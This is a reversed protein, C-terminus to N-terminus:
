GGRMAERQLDKMGASESGSTSKRPKRHPHEIQLPKGKPKGGLAQFVARFGADNVEAATALLEHDTTWQPREERWVAADMPLGTILALLRRVGEVQM